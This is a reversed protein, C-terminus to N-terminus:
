PSRPEVSLCNLRTVRYATQSLGVAALLFARASVGLATTSTLLLHCQEDVRKPRQSAPEDYRLIFM